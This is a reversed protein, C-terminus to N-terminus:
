SGLVELEKTLEIRTQMRILLILCSNFAHAVLSRSDMTWLTIFIAQHYHMDQDMGEYKLLITVIWHQVSTNNLDSTHVALPSGHWNAKAFPCLVLHPPNMGQM